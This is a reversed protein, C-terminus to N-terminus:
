PRPIDLCWIGDLLLPKGQQDLGFVVDLEVEQLGRRHDSHQMQMRGNLRLKRGVIAEFDLM